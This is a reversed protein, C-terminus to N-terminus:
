LFRIILETFIVTLKFTQVKNTCLCDQMDFWVGKKHSTFLSESHKNEDKSLLQHIVM